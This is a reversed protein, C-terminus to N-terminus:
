IATCKRALERTNNLNLYPSLFNVNKLSEMNGRLLESYYALVPCILTTIASKKMWM